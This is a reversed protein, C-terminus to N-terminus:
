ASPYSQETRPPSWAFHVSRVFDDPVSILIKRGCSNQESTALRKGRCPRCLRVSIRFKPVLLLFHLFKFSFQVIYLLGIGIAVLTIVPARSQHSPANTESRSAIRLRSGNRCNSGRCRRIRAALTARLLVPWSTTQLIRAILVIIIRPPPVVCSEKENSSPAGSFRRASLSDEAEKRAQERRRRRMFFIALLIALLGLLGGVVGGAIAGAKSGGGGGGGGDTSAALGDGGTINALLTPTTYQARIPDAFYHVFNHLVSLQIPPLRIQGRCVRCTSSMSVQVGEDALTSSTPPFFRVLSIAFSIGRFSEEGFSWRIGMWLVYM